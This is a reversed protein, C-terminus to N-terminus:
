RIAKSMLKACPYAPLVVRQGCEPARSATAPQTCTRHESSVYSSKMFIIHWAGSRTSPAFRRTGGHETSGGKM